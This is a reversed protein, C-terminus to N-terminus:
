NPETCDKAVKVDFGEDMLCHGDLKMVFEGQALRMGTNIASRMGMQESRHILHVNPADELIPDPWYGDLRVIVELDGRARDLLSSVTQQLYQEYRAPIVVSVM